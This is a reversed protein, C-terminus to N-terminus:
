LKIEEKKPIEKSAPDWIAWFTRSSVANDLNAELATGGVEVEWISLNCARAM